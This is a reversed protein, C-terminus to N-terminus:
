DQDAIEFKSGRSAILGLLFGGIFHCETYHVICVNTVLVIKTLESSNVSPSCQTVSAANKLTCLLFRVTTVQCEFEGDSGHVRCLHFTFTIRKEVVKEVYNGCECRSVTTFEM